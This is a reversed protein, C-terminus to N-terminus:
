IMRLSGKQKHCELIAHAPNSGCGPAHSHQSAMADKRFRCEVAVAGPCALSIRSYGLARGLLEWLPLVACPNLDYPHSVALGPNLDQYLCAIGEAHLKM